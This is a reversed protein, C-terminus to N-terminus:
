LDNVPLIDKIMYREGTEDVDVTCILNYHNGDEGDEILQNVKNGVITPSGSVMQSTADIGTKSNTSIVVPSSIEQKIVSFDFTVLIKEGPAKPSLPM